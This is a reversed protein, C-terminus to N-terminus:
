LSGLWARRRLCLACGDAPPSPQRLHGSSLTLQQRQEKALIPITTLVGPTESSPGCAQILQNFGAADGQTRGGPCFAQAVCDRPVLGRIQQFWMSWMAAHPFGKTALFLMAVKPVNIVAACADKQYVGAQM